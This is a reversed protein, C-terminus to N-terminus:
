SIILYLLAKSVKAEAGESTGEGNNVDPADGKSLKLAARLAESDEDEDVDIPQAGTGSSASAGGDAPIPKGENEILHDMAPQLGRNQTAKM